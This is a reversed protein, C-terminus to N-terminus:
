KQQNKPNKEKFYKEVDLFCGIKAYFDLFFVFFVIFFASVSM